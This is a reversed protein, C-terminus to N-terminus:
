KEAAGVRRSRASRTSNGVRVLAGARGLGFTPMHGYVVEHQTVVHTEHWIGVSGDNSAKYFDRWAPQHRRDPDRAYSELHEASRWYQISTVGRPPDFVSRGSLFGSEPDAALEAIMPGMARVVPLWSRVSRLRNIRAGILFVVFGDELSTTWLGDRVDAAM